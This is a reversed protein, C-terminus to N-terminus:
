EAAFAISDADNDGGLAVFAIHDAPMFGLEAMRDDNMVESLDMYAMEIDAIDSALAKSESEYSRKQAMMMTTSVLTYLYAFAVVLFIGILWTTLSMNLSQM